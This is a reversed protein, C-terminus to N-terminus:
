IARATTCMASRPALARIARPRIRFHGSFPFRRRRSRARSTPSARVATRRSTASRRRRTARRGSCRARRSILSQSSDILQSYMGLVSAAGTMQGSMNDVHDALTGVAGSLDADQSYKSLSSVISLAVDSLTELFVQNVQNSVQDAGQDTVKPAIANKKENTYYIINAHEVEDSYFTMM